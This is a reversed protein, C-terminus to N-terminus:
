GFTKGEDRRFGLWALALSLVTVAGLAAVHLAVPRGLDGGITKLALQGLHYPPLWPALGQLFSPLVQVPIWLGSGFSLPLYVLNVVAPASNPGCWVGFALGMACFPLAGAVLTGGLAIWSGAPLRVGAVGTGVAAQALVILLAFLSSMVVKATFYAGAPMPSARKLLLWGQGREVAVGVGFGFLAAGIVGFAGYTALMYAAGQVGGMTRPGFAVAFMLYFLTPFGLTPLAYAPLRLVKLFELKSELAYTRAAARLGVAAPVNPTRPRM